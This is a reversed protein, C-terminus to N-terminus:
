AVPPRLETVFYDNFIRGYQEALAVRCAEANRQLQLKTRDANEKLEGFQRMVKDVEIREIDQRFETLGASAMLDDVKEHYSIAVVPKGLMLAMLVNHFRSAVVLDTAALQSLVDEVSGAADDVISGNQFGVGREELFAKLDRRARQDHEVDGILLRVTYKKELLWSVFTGLKAIYERYLSEDEQAGCRRKLCTIVGVGIVSGHGGNHNAPRITATPFSYALDPYVYDGGSDFGISKLYGKSFYDRYSRYDARSLAAKVFLRSVPHRIPGAGVCLFLVKCRCLKAIVTWKLIEYHWGFSIGFDSLMGTGAMILMDVDRLTAIAKLWRFLELPSVVFVV